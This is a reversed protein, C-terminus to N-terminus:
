DKKILESVFLEVADWQGMRGSKMDISYKLGKDVMKKLYSENYRMGNDITKNVAFIPPRRDFYELMESATLGDQKLLKCMLLEYLQDLIISMVMTPSVNDTKLHKLQEKAKDGRGGIINKNFIDYVQIEASKTVVADIDDRTVKHREEGLYLILKKVDQSIKTLSQGSIRVFYSLDRAIIRKNAKELQKEVWVELKNVPLYEFNVIGGGCEEIFKLSKVKKPDFGNEWFILCVYEPLNLIYEKISKFNGTTLNSFLGSNKVVVLRRDSVQPFIEAAEIIEEATIKDSNLYSFNFSVLDKPIIKDKISKIKNELLYTEDGFFFFVRPITYSKIARNLEEITM